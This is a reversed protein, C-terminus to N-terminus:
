RRRRSRSRVTNEWRSFSEKLTRGRDKATDKTDSVLARVPSALLVIGAVMAGFAGLGLVLARTAFFAILFLLGVVFVGVGTRFRRVRPERAPDERAFLQEEDYFDREIEELIKRERESLPTM